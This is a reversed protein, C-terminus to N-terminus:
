IRFMVNLFDNNKTLVHGNADNDKVIFDIKINCSAGM